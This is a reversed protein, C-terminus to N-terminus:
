GLAGSPALPIQGAGPSTALRVATEALILNSDLLPLGLDTEGLVLPLETCGLIIARAGERALRRGVAVGEQRLPEDVQQAKIAYILRDIVEQGRTDPALIETEHPQFARQYLGAAVTARTALLGVRALGPFRGAAARAVENMIHLVPVRVAAQIADYFAHATNCPIAILDAGAAEVNRATAVLAPTPDEGHGLIAPGRDPVTPNNDIILRVHEQDRRAPTLRLVKEFFDLTAWPGMGGVVGITRHM